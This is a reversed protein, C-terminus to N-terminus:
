HRLHLENFFVYRSAVLYLWRFWVFQSVHASAMSRWATASSRVGFFELTEPWSAESGALLTSLAALPTPHRHAVRAAVMSLPGSYKLGLPVTVLEYVPIASISHSGPTTRTSPASRANTHSQTSWARVGRAVARHNPHGSVGDDDFTIIVDPKLMTVAAQITAAIMPLPWSEDFGDVVLPPRDPTV